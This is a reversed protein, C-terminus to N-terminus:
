VGYERDFKDIGVNSFRVVHGRQWSGGYGNEVKIHKRSEHIEVVKRWQTDGELLVLTGCKFRKDFNKMQKKNFQTPFLSIYHSLGGKTDNDFDQDVTYSHDSTLRQAFAKSVDIADYMSYGKFPVLGVRANAGLALAGKDDTYNSSALLQGKKVTDGLISKAKKNSLSSGTSLGSKVIVVFCSISDRHNYTIPLNNHLTVFTM